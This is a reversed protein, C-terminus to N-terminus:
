EEWIGLEKLSERLKQAEKHCDQAEYLNIAEKFAQSSEALKGLKFLVVGLNQHAPAYTPSLSLLKEYVNVSDGFRGMQSYTMALNYYGTVFGADIQITIGYVEAAKKLDGIGQLVVGLNNYAGLKLPGMIKQEIAKQYHKIANEYNQQRTYANALHYHLEFLVHTDALNSKLGQKLLKIGKKEQEVQLYLAGLKSCTYADTPHKELFGEMAKQARTYKDLSAIAGPTYGYHFMSVAPLEAIKWHNEKKLLETVSDDIMAHYPRSFKIEPHKRFLRSVLSYPSQSAGIEHRVLNVVLSDPNEIAEKLQEVVKNNLLEDADLVLVWDGTVYELAVNRAIAFDNCWAFFPVTAGFQKAIEVTRDTSGTDMVIMEDVVNKVSDLCQPLNQEENKVIMCLSLKTM